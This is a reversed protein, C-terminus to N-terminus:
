VGDCADSSNVEGIRYRLRLGTEADSGGLRASWASCNNRQFLVRVYGFQVPYLTILM